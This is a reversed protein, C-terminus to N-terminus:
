IQSEPIKETLNKKKDRSESWRLLYICVLLVVALVIFAVGMPIGRYDTNIIIVIVSYVIDFLIIILGSRRLFTYEYLIGFAFLFAGILAWSISTWIEKLYVNELYFFLISTIMGVLTAVVSLNTSLPEGILFMENIVIFIYLVISIALLSIFTAYNSVNALFVMVCALFVLSTTLSIINSIRVNLTVTASVLIMSIILLKLFIFEFNDITHVLSFLASLHFVFFTIVLSGDINVLKQDSSYSFTESDREIRTDPYFKITLVISTILVLPIFLAYDVVFTKNLASLWDFSKGFSFSYVIVAVLNIGIFGLFKKLDFTEELFVILLSIAISVFILIGNMLAFVNDFVLIFGFFPGISAFLLVTIIFGFHLAFNNRHIFALGLTTLCWVFWIVVIVNLEYNIKVFGHDFLTFSILVLMTIGSLIVTLITETETKKIYQYIFFYLCYAVFIVTTTITEELIGGVIILSIFPIPMLYNINEKQLWLFGITGIALISYILSSIWQTEFLNFSEVLIYFLHLLSLIIIQHIKRDQKINRRKVHKEEVERRIVETTSVTEDL